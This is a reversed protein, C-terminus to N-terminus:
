LVPGKEVVLKQAKVISYITTALFLLLAIENLFGGWRRVAVLNALDGLIRILLSLHLLILQVAFAPRYTIPVGLIAPFIIPAHGFIMSIVFGVFISHLAADYM